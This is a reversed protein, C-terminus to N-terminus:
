EIEFSEIILSYKEYEFREILISVNIRDPAM